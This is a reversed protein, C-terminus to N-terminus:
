MVAVLYFCCGLDYFIEAKKITMFRRLVKVGLRRKTLAAEMFTYQWQDANLNEFTVSKEFVSPLM